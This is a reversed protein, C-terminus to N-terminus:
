KAERELAALARCLNEVMTRAARVAETRSEYGSCDCDHIQSLHDCWNALTDLVDTVPWTSSMGLAERVMRTTEPSTFGKGIRGTLIDKRTQIYRELFEISIPPDPCKTGIFKRMEACAAEAKLRASKETALQALLEAVPKELAGAMCVVKTEQDSAPLKEIEVCLDYIAQYIPHKYLNM